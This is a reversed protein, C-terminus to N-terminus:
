VYNIIMCQACLTTQSQFRRVPIRPVSYWYMWCPFQSWTDIKEYESKANRIMTGLMRHCEIVRSIGQYIELSVTSLLILLGRSRFSQGEWFFLPGNTRLCQTPAGCGGCGDAVPPDMRTWPRSAWRWRRGPFHRPYFEPERGLNSGFQSSHTKRETREPYEPLVTFSFNDSWVELVLLTLLPDEAPTTVKDVVHM